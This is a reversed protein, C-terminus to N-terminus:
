LFSIFSKSSKIQDFEFNKISVFKFIEEYFKVLKLCHFLFVKIM